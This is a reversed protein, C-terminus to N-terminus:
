AHRSCTANEAFLSRSRAKARNETPPPPLPSPTKFNYKKPPALFFPQLTLTQTNKVFLDRFIEKVPLILFWPKETKVVFDLIFSFHKEASFPPNTVLVDFKPVRQEECVRYFDENENYVSDFGLRALRKKVGGQCYYPDYIQLHKSAVRWHQDPSMATAIERLLPTIHRYAIGPTECHDGLDAEFAFPELERKKPRAFQGNDCSRDRNGSSTAFRCSGPYGVLSDGCFCYQGLEAAICSVLTVLGIARVTDRATKSSRLGMACMRCCLLCCEPDGFCVRTSVKLCTAATPM